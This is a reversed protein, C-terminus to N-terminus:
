LENAGTVAFENASFYFFPSERLLIPIGYLVDYVSPDGKKNKYVCSTGVKM